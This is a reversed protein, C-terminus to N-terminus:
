GVILSSADQRVAEKWKMGRGKGEERIPERVFKEDEFDLLLRLVVKKRYSARAKAGESPRCLPLVLSVRVVFGFVVKVDEKGLGHEWWGEM